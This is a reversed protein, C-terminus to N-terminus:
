VEKWSRHKAESSYAVDPNHFLRELMEKMIDSMKRPQNTM